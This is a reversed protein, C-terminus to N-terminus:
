SRRRSIAQIQSATLLTAFIPRTTLPSSVPRGVGVSSVYVSEGQEQDLKGKILVAQRQKELIAYVNEVRAPLRVVLVKGAVEISFTVGYIKGDQGYDFTIQRAGHKVLVQQLQEFIKSIEISSRYNKIAKM